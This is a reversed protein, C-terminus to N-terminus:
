HTDYGKIKNLAVVLLILNKISVLIGEDSSYKFSNNNSSYKNRYIYVKIVTWSIVAHLM